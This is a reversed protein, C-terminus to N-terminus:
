TARRATPNSGGSGTLRPGSSVPDAPPPSFPSPAQDTPRRTAARADGPEPAPQEHDADEHQAHDHRRSHGHGHSPGAGHHHDHAAPGEAALSHPVELGCGLMLDENGLICDTPGDAVIRGQDIVAVRQCTARVFELDHSAIVQTEGIGALQEVLQRRSRPDLGSTPEDLLLARPRMALVTALAVLRQEGGSLEYSIRTALHTLGLRDLTRSVIENAEDPSHGLNLPGFAVDEGVTPCFLQDQADQFLLGANRRLRACDARNEIARGFAWLRGQGPRLLGVLLRFLTTKGAGNAGVVGLRDQDHIQLDLGSFVPARGPYGFHIGELRILTHDDM